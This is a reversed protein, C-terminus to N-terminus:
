VIHSATFIILFLTLKYYLVLAFSKGVTKFIFDVESVSSLEDLKLFALVKYIYGIAVGRKFDIMYGIALFIGLDAFVIFSRLMIVIFVDNIKTHSMWAYAYATVVGAM